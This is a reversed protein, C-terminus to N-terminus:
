RRGAARLLDDAWAADAGELPPECPRDYRLTRDYRGNLYADDLLRQLDLQAFADERRLPVNLTPLRDRLPIPQLYAEGDAGPTRIM